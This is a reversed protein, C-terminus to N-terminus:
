TIVIGVPCHDSGMIDPHITAEVIRSTIGQSALFYDIRWGSNNARANNFNSWWTYAWELAPNKQRFIDVLGMELFKEFGHREEHTFGHVGENQKPNKLDIPQHAVNLDGCFIVPKHEQLKSLFHRMARDWEQRYPLRSLDDKSNPIYSNVYYFDEFELALTRGENDAETGIRNMVAMPPIKTFVATGSYGPREASNFICEYGLSQIIDTEAIIQEPKAKIEQLGIIDPNLKQLIEPFWKKMVARIGNVNWSFLRM